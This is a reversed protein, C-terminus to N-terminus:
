LARSGEPMGAGRPEERSRGWVAWPETGESGVAARLM